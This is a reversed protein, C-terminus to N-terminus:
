KPKETQPPPLPAEKPKEDYDITTFNSLTKVMSLNMMLTSKMM